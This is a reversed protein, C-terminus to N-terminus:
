ARRRDIMKCCRREGSWAWRPASGASVGRQVRGRGCVSRRSDRLEDIRSNAPAASLLRVTAPSPSISASFQPPAFSFVVATSTFRAVFTFFFFFFFFFFFCDITRLTSPMLSGSTHVATSRQKIMAAPTTETVSSVTRERCRASYVHQRQAQLVSRAGSGCEM